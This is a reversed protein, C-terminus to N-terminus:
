TTFPDDQHVDVQKELSQLVEYRSRLCGLPNAECAADDWGLVADDVMSRIKAAAVPAVNQLAFYGGAVFVATTALYAVTKVFMKTGKPQAENATLLDVVHFCLTEALVGQNKLVFHRRDASSM